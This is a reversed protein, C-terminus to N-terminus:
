SWEVASCYLEGLDVTDVQVVERAKKGRLVKGRKKNKWRRRLRYRENLIRYITSRALRIGYEKQLFYQVKEGCCDHYRERIEYVRAKVIGDTKSRHRVRKASRYDKIFGRIGNLRIGKLWRYVTARHVGVKEPIEEVSIGAEYLKWCVEIKTVKDM